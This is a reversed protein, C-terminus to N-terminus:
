TWLSVMALCLAGVTAAKLVSNRLRHLLPPQSKEECHEASYSTSTPSELLTSINRQEEQTEQACKAPKSARVLGAVPRFPQVHRRAYTKSSVYPILNLSHSTSGLM